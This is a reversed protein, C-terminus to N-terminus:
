PATPVGPPRASEAPIGKERRFESERLRDVALIAFNTRSTILVPSALRSATRTAVDTFPVVLYDARPYGSPQVQLAEWAFPSGIYDILLPRKLVHSLERHPVEFSAAVRANAPANRVLWAGVEGFDPASRPAPPRFWWNAGANLFLLLTLGTEVAARIGLRNRFNQEAGRWAWAVLCPLVLFAPRAWGHPPGPLMPVAVLLWGCGLVLGLQALSRRRLWGAQSQPGTWRWWDAPQWGVGELEARVGVLAFWLGALLLGGRMFVGLWSVQHLPGLLQPPVRRWWGGIAELFPEGRIFQWADGPGDSVGGGASAAATQMLDQWVDGPGDGGQGWSGWLIVAGTVPGLACLLRGPTRAAAVVVLAYVPLWALVATRTLYLGGFAVGIWLWGWLGKTGPEGTLSMGLGAYLLALFLFDPSLGRWMVLWDLSTMMGACVGLMVGVPVGQKRGFWYIVGGALAGMGLVLWEMREMREAPTRGAAAAVSLYAAQAPPYRSIRPEGVWDAFRYGKGAAFSEAGAVYVSGEGGVTRGPVVYGRYLVVLVALLLVYGLVDAAGLSQRGSGNGVELTSSGRMQLGM